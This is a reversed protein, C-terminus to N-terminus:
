PLNERLFVEVRPMVPPAPADALHHDVLLRLAERAEFTPNQDIIADITGDILYPRTYRHLDHGILVVDQGRGSEKVAGAVGRIGAGICYIGCLDGHRALAQATVRHAEEFHDHTQWRGAVELHPFQERLADCFGLEREQHDRYSLNLSGEMVAVPGTRGALFRGMLYGATRGASRNNLGVYGIARSGSLNAVVTVVPVGAATVDNVAERVVPNELAVIALGNSRAGIRRISEALVQPDFGDVRHCRTRVGLPAFAGAADLSAQELLAMFTNPGGPLIFDMVLNRRLTEGGIGNRTELLRLADWVRQATRPSVGSRDNLVRDVTAIGVGAERAIDTQRVKGRPM